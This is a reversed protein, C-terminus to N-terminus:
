CETTFHGCTMRMWTRLGGHRLEYALRDRLEDCGFVEATRM